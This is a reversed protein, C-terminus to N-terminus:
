SSAAEADVLGHGYYQDWGPSGLDEATAILKSRVEAPDWTGDGDSDYSGIASNLVLAVSGSVHPTAMSTGTITRYDGGKWTSHVDVGPASIEIQPGYNNWYYLGDTETTASVAIVSSYAAPYSVSSRDNGAAAVLVIGADYAADCIDHMSQYNSRSGLSMSIVDMDNDIAWQIGDVLDSIYGRGRNDLVKVAWLNVDPAVGIVGEENDVAGITGAVHTGHGNDDDWTYLGKGKAQVFAVGGAVNDVLDPHDYDIGTDLIAVDISSGTNFALEADIRDVGWPLVEPSPEEDGDDKGGGAWPPKAHAVVSTDDFDLLYLEPGDEVESEDAGMITPFASLLFAITVIGIILKKYM